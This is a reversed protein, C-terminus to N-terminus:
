GGFLIAVFVLLTGVMAIILGTRVPRVGAYRAWLYGMVFLSLIAVANSMRIASDPDPILLLPLSMPLTGAAMATFLAFAALLDDRTIGGTQPTRKNLQNVIASALVTREADDTVDYLRDGLLETVEVVADERSPAKQVARIFRGTQDREAMSGILYIVADIFAWTLASTVAAGFLSHVDSRTPQAAMEPSYLHVSITFMMVIMTGYVAALLTDLPDLHREWFALM